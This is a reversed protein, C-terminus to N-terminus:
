AGVRQDDRHRDVHSWSHRNYGSCCQRQDTSSSRLQGVASATSLHENGQDGGFRDITIPGNQLYVSGTFSRNILPDLQQSRSNPRSRTHTRSGMISGRKATSVLQDLCGRRRRPFPVLTGVHGYCPVTAEARKQSTEAFAVKQSGFSAQTSQLWIPDFNLALKVLRKTYPDAM